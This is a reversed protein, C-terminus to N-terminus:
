RPHKGFLREVRDHHGARHQSKMKERDMNEKSDDVVIKGNLSVKAHHFTQNPGVELADGEGESWKEECVSVVILARILRRKGHVIRSADHQAQLAPGFRLMTGDVLVVGNLEEGPGHLTVDVIGSAKLAELGFSM